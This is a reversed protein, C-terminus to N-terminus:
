TPMSDGGKIGLGGLEVDDLSKYKAGCIQVSVVGRGGSSSRHVMYRDCCDQGYGRGTRMDDLLDILRDFTDGASDEAGRGIGRRAVRAEGAIDGLVIWDVRAALLSMSATSRRVMAFPSRVVMALQSVSVAICCWRKVSCILPRWSRM